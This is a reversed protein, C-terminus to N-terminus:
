SRPAAAMLAGATSRGARMPYFCCTAGAQAWVPSFSAQEESSILQTPGGRLPKVWIRFGQTADTSRAFDLAVASGDPSLALANVIGDVATADAMSRTGARTVWALGLGRDADCRSFLLDGLPSLALDIAGLGRIALGNLM